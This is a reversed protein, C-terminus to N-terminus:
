RNALEARIRDIARYLNPGQGVNSFRLVRYGEQEIIRDEIEDEPRYLAEDHESEDLEIVLRSSHELFDVIYGCFPAQRRFHFGRANFERLKYWLKREGDTPNKRQFRAREITGPKLRTRM